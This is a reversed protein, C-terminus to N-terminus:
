PEGDKPDPDGVSQRCLPCDTHNKCWHALCDEHFFHSCPTKVAGREDELAEICIPCAIIEGDEAVLERSGAPVKPLKKVASECGPKVILTNLIMLVRRFGFAGFITACLIFFSMAIQGYIYHKTPYFLAPNTKHCTESSHVMYLGWGIVAWGPLSFALTLWMRNFTSWGHGVLETLPGPVQSWLIGVLLYFKLPQDCPKDNHQIVAVFALVFLVLMTILLTTFVSLCLCIWKLSGMLMTQMEEGLRQQVTDQNEAAIRTSQQRIPLNEASNGDEAREAPIAAAGGAFIRSTSRLLSASHQRILHPEM